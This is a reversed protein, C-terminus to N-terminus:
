EGLEEQIIGMKEQREASYSKEKENLYEFVLLCKRLLDKRADPEDLLFAKEYIVGALFDLMPSTLKKEYVLVSILKDAPIQEVLAITIGPLEKLAEDAVEMAEERRGQQKLGIMRALVTSLQQFYKMLYDRHEM